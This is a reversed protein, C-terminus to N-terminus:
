QDAHQKGLILTTTARTLSLYDSQIARGSAGGFVRIIGDPCLDVLFM